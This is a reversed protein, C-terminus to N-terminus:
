LGRVQKDDPDQVNQFTLTELFRGALSPKFIVPIEKIQYPRLLGSYGLPCELDDSAISRTKIISYQVSIDSM